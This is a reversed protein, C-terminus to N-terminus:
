FLEAPDARELKRLALVGSLSCMAVTLVLVTALISVTMQTPLTTATGIIRYVVTAAIAAPLFGVLALVLAQELVMLRVAVMSFGIARLTAYEKLHHVVESTLIQYLIVAGVVLALLVGSTFMIGVPKVRITVQEEQARHEAALLVRVDDPLAAALAGRVAHVDAGEELRVLGLTAADASRRPYLARYTSDGVIAAANAAFGAGHRYLAVVTMLRGGLEIRDGEVHARYGPGVKTDLMVTDLAAVRALHEDAEPLRFPSDHPDVGLVLYERRLGRPEIRVKAVGAHLPTARAVGPIAEAQYIRRAPIAGPQRLVKYTPSVLVLDYDLQEFVMMSSTYAARYFGLQVFILLVAM